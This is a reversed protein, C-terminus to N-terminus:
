GGTAALMISICIIFMVSIVIVMALIMTVVGATDQLVGTIRRDALPEVAAASVKLILGIVSIKIIPVLCMACITIVGATGVANKVLVSGGVVTEITESLLGGVVPVFSGVAFKVARGGLADLKPATFGYIGTIGTFMTLVATLIWKSISQVLKTYNSIQVRGSVNNVIALVAGFLILPILCKNVVVTIVYVAASLVPKYVTATGAFGSSVIMTLLLPSLKIIFESMLGIVNKAYELANLLGDVAASAAAIFCALFSAESVGVNKISGQMVTLIGSLSAVIIFTAMSTKSNNIEELFVDIIKESIEKPNISFSGDVMNSVNNNFEYEDDLKPIESAFVPEFVCFLLLIFMILIKKM